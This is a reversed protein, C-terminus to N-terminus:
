LAAPSPNSTGQVWCWGADVLMLCCWGAGLMEQVSALWSIWLWWYHGREHCFLQELASFIQYWASKQKNTADYKAVKHQPVCIFFFLLVMPYTTKTGSIRSSGCTNTATGIHKSPTPQGFGVPEGGHATRQMDHRYIRHSVLNPVLLNMWSFFVRGAIPIIGWPNQM